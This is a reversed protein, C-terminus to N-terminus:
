GPQTMWDFIAELSIYFLSNDDKLMVLLYAIMLSILSFM